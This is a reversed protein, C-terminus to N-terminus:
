RVWGKLWDTLEQAQQAKRRDRDELYWNVQLVPWVAWILWGAIV